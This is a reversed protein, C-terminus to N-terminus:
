NLRVEIKAQSRKRDLWHAFARQRKEELLTMGISDKMEEYSAISDKERDTVRVLYYKDKGKYPGGHQGNRLNRVALSLGPSFLDPNVWGYGSVNAKQGASLRDAVADFDAKQERLEKMVARAAAEDGFEIMNMLVKTPKLFPRSSGSYYRRVEEDTVQEGGLLSATFRSILLKEKTRQRFIDVPIGKEKLAKSFAAEGMSKRISEVEAAAEADTVKMGQATAEEAMLMEIILADLVGEKLKRLDAGTVAHGADATRERVMVEFTRNDVPRGNVTAVPKSCGAPLTLLLMLWLIIGTKNELM